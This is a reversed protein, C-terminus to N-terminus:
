QATWSPRLSVIIGVLGYLNMTAATPPRSDTTSASRPSVSTSGAFTAAIRVTAACTSVASCAAAIRTLSSPSNDHGDSQAGGVQRVLPQVHQRAGCESRGGHAGDFQVGGIGSRGAGGGGSGTVRGAFGDCPRRRRGAG